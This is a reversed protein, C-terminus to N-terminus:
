LHIMMNVYMYVPSLVHVTVIILGTECDASSLDNSTPQRALRREGNDHNIYMCTCQVDVIYKCVKDKCEVKSLRKKKIKPWVVGM